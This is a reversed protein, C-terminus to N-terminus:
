IGMPELGIVIIQQLQAKDALARVLAIDVVVLATVVLGALGWLLLTAPDRGGLKGDIWALCHPILLLLGAVGCLTLAAVRKRAVEIGAEIKRDLVEIGKRVRVEIAEIQDTVLLDVSKRSLFRELEPAMVARQIAATRLAAVSSKPLSQRRM